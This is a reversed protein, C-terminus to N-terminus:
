LLSKSLLFDKINMWRIGNKDTDFGEDM